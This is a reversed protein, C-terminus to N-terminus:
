YHIDLMSQGQQRQFSAHGSSLDPQATQYGRTSSWFQQQQQQKALERWAGQNQGQNGSGKGGTTVDFSEMTINQRALSEKLADTHSAIVDRVARNETVIEVILKQGQLNLNMKLEGLNEPSLTLTIQQSGPKLDHQSLREKVQHMVQEPLEQRALEPPAAKASPANVGPHETKSQVGMSQTLSPNNEGPSTTFDPATEGGQTTAKLASATEMAAPLDGGAKDKEILPEHSVRQTAGRLEPTMTASQSDALVAAATVRATIPLPQSLQIEIEAEPSTAPLSSALPPPQRDNKLPASAASTRESLMEPPENTRSGPMAVPKDTATAATTIASPMAPTQVGESEARVLNIKVQPPAISAPQVAADTENRLNGAPPATQINVESTRDTKAPQVSTLPVSIDSTSLRAVPQETREEYRLTTIVEPRETAAALNQPMDIPIQALFIVDSTRDAKAPQERTASAATAVDSHQRQEPIIAPKAQKEMQPASSNSLYELATARNQPMDVPAQPPMTLEPTRGPQSYAALVMQSTVDSAEGGSLLGEEPVDAKGSVEPKQEFAELAQNIPLPANLQPLLDVVSTEVGNNQALQENGQLTEIEPLDPLENEKIQQRIGNLLDAFATSSQLATEMTAAVQAVSEPTASQAAMPMSIMNMQGNIM